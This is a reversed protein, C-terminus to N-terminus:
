KDGGVVANLQRADIVFFFLVVFSCLVCNSLPVDGVHSRAVELTYVCGALFLSFGLMLSGERPASPSANM